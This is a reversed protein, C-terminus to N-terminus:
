EETTNLKDLVAQVRQLVQSTKEAYYASVIVNITQVQPDLPNIGAAKLRAHLEQAVDAKDFM